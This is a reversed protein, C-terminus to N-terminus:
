NPEIKDAPFWVDVGEAKAVDRLKKDTTILLQIRLAPPKDGTGTDLVPCALAL